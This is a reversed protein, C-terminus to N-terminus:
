VPRHQTGEGFTIVTLDGPEIARAFHWHGREILYTEQAGLSVTRRSGDPAELDIEIAGSNLIFLEEGEPHMEWHPFDGTMQIFTVLASDTIEGAMLKPWFSDRSHPTMRGEAPAITYVTDTTQHTMDSM